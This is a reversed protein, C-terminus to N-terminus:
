HLINKDTVMFLMICNPDTTDPSRVQLALRITEVNIVSKYSNQVAHVFNDQKASKQHVQQGMMVPKM